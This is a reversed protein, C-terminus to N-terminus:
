DIFMSVSCAAATELLIGKVFSDVVISFGVRETSGLVPAFKAAQRSLLGSDKNVSYVSALPVGNREFANAAFFLMGISLVLYPPKLGSPRNPM